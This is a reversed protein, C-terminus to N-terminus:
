TESSMTYNLKVKIRHRGKSLVVYRVIMGPPGAIRHNAKRVVHEEVVLLSTQQDRCMKGNNCLFVNHTDAKIKVMTGVLSDTATPVGMKAIEM